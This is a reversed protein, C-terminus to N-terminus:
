STEMKLMEEGTTELEKPITEEIVSDTDNDSEEETWTDYSEDDEDWSFERVIETKRALIKSREIGGEDVVAIKTKIDVKELVETVGDAEYTNTTHKGEPVIDNMERKLTETEGRVAWTASHATETEDQVAWTASNVTETEGLVTWTVSNATETEDQVAWTVLNATETEGQVAWTESKAAGTELCVTKNYLKAEENTSEVREAASKTPETELISSMRESKIIYTEPNVSKHLVDVRTENTEVQGQEAENKKNNRVRSNAVFELAVEAETSDTKFMENESGSVQLNLPEKQKKETLKTETRITCKASEIIEAAKKTAMAEVNMASDDVKVDISAVQVTNQRELTGTEANKNDKVEERGSVFEEANVSKVATENPTRQIIHDTAASEVVSPKMESQTMKTDVNEKKSELLMTNADNYTQEVESTQYQISTSAAKTKFVNSLTEQMQLQMVKSTLSREAESAQSQQAEVQRADPQVPSLRFTDPRTPAQFAKLQTMALDDFCSGQATPAGVAPGLDQRMYSGNVVEQLQTVTKYVQASRNDPMVNKDDKLSTEPLYLTRLDLNLYGDDEVGMRETEIEDQNFQTQGNDVVDQRLSLTKEPSITRSKEPNFSRSSNKSIKRLMNLKYEVNNKEMDVMCRIMEKTNESHGPADLRGSEGELRTVDRTQGSRGRERRITNQLTTTKRDREDEEAERFKDILPAYMDQYRFLYSEVPQCASAGSAESYNLSAQLIKFSRSQVSPNTYGRYESSEESVQSRTGSSNASDVEDQGVDIANLYLTGLDFVNINCTKEM